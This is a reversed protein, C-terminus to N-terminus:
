KFKRMVEDYSVTNLKGSRYAQFRTEAEKRWASDIQSDPQDLDAILMEALQLKEQPLLQSLQQYLEQTTLM